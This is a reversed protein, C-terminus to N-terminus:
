WRWAGIGSRCICRTWIGTRRRGCIGWRRCIGGCFGSVRVRLDRDRKGPVVVMRGSRGRAGTQGAEVWAVGATGGVLLGAGPEAQHPRVVGAMGSGGNADRAFCPLVQASDSDGYDWPEREVQVEWFFRAARRLRAEVAPGLKQGAAHLAMRAQWCLEFAFLQYNLAQERNGGDEAFQALVERELLKKLTGLSAGWQALRPWRVTAVILGALEGLLHNNASSGFSRQRWVFRVHMPLLRALLAGWAEEGVGVEFRGALLGDMWTLQVLRM